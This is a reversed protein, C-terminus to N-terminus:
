RKHIAQSIPVSRDDSQYKKKISLLIAKHIKLFVIVDTVNRYTYTKQNPQASCRGMMTMQRSQYCETFVREMKKVYRRERYINLGRRPTKVFM